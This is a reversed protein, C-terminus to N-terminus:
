RASPTSSPPTMREDEVERRNFAHMLTPIAIALSALAIGGAVMLLDLAGDVRTGLAREFFEIVLILIILKAIRDKLDDLSAIVLLRPADKGERRADLRGIFLEYLGFSVLVLIAAILYLDLIKVIDSLVDERITPRDAAKAYGGVKGIIAALDVTAIWMSVVAALATGAVAALLLFRLAWLLREGLPAPAQATM